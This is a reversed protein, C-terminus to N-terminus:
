LPKKISPTEAHLAPGGLPGAGDKCDQRVELCSSFRVGGDRVPLRRGGFAGGTASQRVVTKEAPIGLLASVASVLYFPCQMSGTVEIGGDDTRRAAMAQTELYMQEQSGTEWDGEVIEDAAAFGAEVDGCETYYRDICNDDGWILEKKAASDEISFIPPLAEVDAEVLALARALLEATPAAVLALAQTAYNIEHEALAPYDTRVMAVYNKGPIDEATVLVAGTEDFGPLKKIGHLIGRPLKSRVAGGYWCGPFDIDDLFKVEGAAKVPGDFRPVSKGIIRFNESM